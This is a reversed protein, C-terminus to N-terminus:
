ACKLSIGYVSSRAADPKGGTNGGTTAEGLSRLYLKLDTEKTWSLVSKRPYIKEQTNERERQTM